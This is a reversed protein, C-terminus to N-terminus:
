SASESEVEPIDIDNLAELSSAKQLKMELLQLKKAELSHKKADNYFKQVFGQLGAIPTLLGISSGIVEYSWGSAEAAEFIFFVARITIFWMLGLCVRRVIHGRDLLDWVGQFLSNIILWVGAIHLSIIEYKTNQEM